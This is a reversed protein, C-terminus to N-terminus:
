NGGCLSDDSRQLHSITGLFKIKSLVGLVFLCEHSQKCTEYDYSKIVTSKRGWSFGGVQAPTSGAFKTESPCGCVLQALWDASNFLLCIKNHQM